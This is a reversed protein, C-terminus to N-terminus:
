VSIHISSYPNKYLKERQKNSVVDFLPSTHEDINKGLEENYRWGRLPLIEAM